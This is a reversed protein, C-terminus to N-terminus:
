PLVNRRDYYLRRLHKKCYRIREAGTPHMDDGVSDYGFYKAYEHFEEIVLYPNIEVADLLELSRLDVYKEEEKPSFKKQLFHAEAHGLEHAILSPVFKAGILKLTKLDIVIDTHFLRGDNDVYCECSTKLIGENRIEIDILSKPVPSFELMDSLFRKYVLRLEILDNMLM